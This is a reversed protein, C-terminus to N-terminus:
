GTKDQGMKAVDLKSVLFTRAVKEKVQERNVQLQNHFTHIINKGVLTPAVHAPITKHHYM